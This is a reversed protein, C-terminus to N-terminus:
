ITTDPMWNFTLYVFNDDITDKLWDIVDINYNINNYNYKAIKTFNDWDNDCMERNFIREIDKRSKNIKDINITYKINNNM